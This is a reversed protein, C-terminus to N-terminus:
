RQTLSKLITQNKKFAVEEIRIQGNINSARMPAYDIAFDHLLAPVMSYNSQPRILIDFEFFSFFDELVNLAHFNQAKRYGYQIQPAAQIFVNAISEVDIADTFLHCYIAKGEFLSIIKLLGEVYFEIPPLKLPANVRTHDTDFGGGERVHIAINVTSEPPKTLYLPTRPAIMERAMKRFQPDEWDVIFPIHWFPREEPNEPFYSISYLCSTDKKLFGLHRLPMKPGSSSVEKLEKEAMVLDSSFLFPRYLLPLDYHYSIWKAHLYSILNDGFRGGSFDYTIAAAQATLASIMFVFRIWKM